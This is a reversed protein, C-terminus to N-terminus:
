GKNVGPGASLGNEDPDASPSDPAEAGVAPAPAVAAVSHLALCFPQECEARGAYPCGPTHCLGQGGSRAQDEDRQVQGSTQLAAMQVWPDLRMSMERGYVQAAQQPQFDMVLLASTRAGAPETGQLVLAVMGSQLAQPPGGFAAQLPAASAAAAPAAALSMSQAQLWAAPVRLTLSFGLAGETTQVSGQRVLWNQLPPLQAEDGGDLARALDAPWPHARTVQQPLVPATLQQVLAEVMSRLPGALGTSPWAPLLPMASAPAGLAPPNLPSASQAGTGARGGADATPLLADGLGQRAQASLSVRDTLVPPAPQAVLVPVVPHAGAALPAPLPERAPAPVAGEREAGLLMNQRQLAAQALAQAVPPQLSRPPEMRISM